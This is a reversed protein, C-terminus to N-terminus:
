APPEPEPEPVVPEPVPEPTSVALFNVKASHNAPQYRLVLTGERQDIAVIHRVNVCGSESLLFM